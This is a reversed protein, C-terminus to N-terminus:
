GGRTLNQLDQWFAPYSTAICDVHLIRVPADASLALLAACMAIRHDGLSDIEAGGRMHRAGRIIMGDPTEEVPVGFARLAAAMAAIRDSEKHRLESADRIVTVGEAMAAAVAACPLEDILNSIEDGAIVTGALHRGRVSITGVPEGGEGSSAQASVEVDAGMRRLVDLFATRRPNLGVGEIVVRAGERCAAATLWFAASSFDGPVVWNRARLAPAGGGCGDVSITNGQAAVPIGAARLMRETHDRTPSPEIVTTRGDAFLGALLVCSKVQASAMPMAYEIGHLRGGTIRVPACGNAGLLEVRAGMTQLPDQIRRMPRSRLSADGTLTAGFPQGALIGALLRMSTGSNGMDLVAAPARLGQTAGRIHLVSGARRATAGMAEMARLTNLCDEGDLFGEVTSEGAALASLMVARHSISKDGPVRLTGALPPAPEVVRQDGNNM